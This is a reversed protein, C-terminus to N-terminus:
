HSLKKKVPLIVTFTSGKGPTSQVTINGQHKDVINYSTFLGIAAKVRQGKKSFGPDFLHPIQKKPIGMGSDTFSLHVEGNKQYTRITITGEGKIAEIANTLLNMFVQNLEAPYCYIKLIEGYKKVIKIRNPIQNEILRLTNNIDIHLDSEQYPSEDLRVFSRFSNIIGTLRESAAVLVRVNKELIDLNKIINGSESSADVLGQFSKLQLISRISVDTVSTIAGMPSNMEHMVGAVLNGLTAMKESQILQSQTEKLEKLIKKLETNKKKLEVNKLREIETIKESSEVEYNVQLNKLKANTEDGSVQEKIEHYRKYHILAKEFEGMRQYVESLARNAQFIRPKAKIEQALNLAETLRELAKKTDNLEIYTYGLNILSTCQSQRNGIEVRIRLSEQHCELAKQYNGLNQYATGLDNLARSEGIKNHHKRFINLSQQHYNLSKQHQSLSQYATGIGTLARGKGLENYKDDTTGLKEFIKLSRRHYDLAKSFDGWEHYGLGLNYLSWGEMYTNGLKLIIEYGKLQYALADEYNGLSLQVAAMGGYIEAKGETFGTEEAMKLATKFKPLAAELDSMMYKAYGHLGISYGLGKQYNLELAINEATIALELGRSPNEIIQLRCLKNILDVKNESKEDPPLEALQQEIESILDAM